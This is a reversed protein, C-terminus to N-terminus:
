KKRRKKLLYITIVIIIGNEYSIVLKLPYKFNKIYEIIEQYGKKLKKRELIKKVTEEPIRYLKGRRKAHRSFKLKVFWGVRGKIGV